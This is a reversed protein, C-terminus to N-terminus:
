KRSSGRKSSTYDTNNMNSTTKHFSFKQGCSLFLSKVFPPASSAHVRTLTRNSHYVGHVFATLMNIKSYLECDMVPPFRPLFKLCSGPPLFQLLSRIPISSVPKSAMAQEALKSTCAM